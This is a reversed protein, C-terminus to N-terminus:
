KRLTKEIEEMTYKKGKNTERKTGWKKYLIGTKAYYIYVPIKLEQEFIRLMTKQTARIKDGNKRKVEIAIYKNTGKKRILFDPWGDRYVKFGNLEAITKLVAENKNVRM